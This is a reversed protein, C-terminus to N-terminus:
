VTRWITIPGVKKKFMEQSPFYLLGILCSKCTNKKISVQFSDKQLKCEHELYIGREYALGVFVYRFISMIAGTKTTQKEAAVDGTGKM